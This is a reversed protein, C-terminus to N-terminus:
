TRPWKREGAPAKAAAANAQAARLRYAAYRQATTNYQRPGGAPGEDEVAAAGAGAGSGRPGAGGRAEAPAPASAPAFEREHEHQPPPPLPQPAAPMGRPAASAAAPAAIVSDPLADLAPAYGAPPAPKAAARRANDHAFATDQARRGSGNGKKDPTGGYTPNTTVYVAAASEDSLRPTSGAAYRRRRAAEAMDRRAHAFQASLNMILFLDALGMLALAALAHVLYQWTGTATALLMPHQEAAACLCSQPAEFVTRFSGLDLCSAPCAGVAAAGQKGAAAAYAAILQTAPAGQPLGATAQPAALGSLMKSAASFAAAPASGAVVPTVGHVMAAEFMFALLLWCLQAAILLAVVVTMLWLGFTILSILTVYGGYSIRGPAGCRTKPLRATEQYTRLLSLLMCMGVISSMIIVSLGTVWNVSSSLQDVTYTRTGLLTDSFLRTSDLAKRTFIAWVPLGTGIMFAGILPVWPSVRICVGFNRCHAQCGTVKDAGEQLDDRMDIMHGAYAAHDCRDM